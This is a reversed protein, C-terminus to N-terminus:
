QRRLMVFLLLPKYLCRHRPAISVPSTFSADRFSTKADTTETRRAFSLLGSRGVVVAISGVTCERIAGVALVTLDCLFLDDRDVVRLRDVPCQQLADGRMHRNVVGYVGYSLSLCPRHRHTMSVTGSCVKVKVVGNCLTDRATTNALIFFRTGAICRSRGHPENDVHFREMDVGSGRGGGFSERAPPSREHWHVL